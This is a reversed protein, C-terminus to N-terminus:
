RLFEECFATLEDIVTTATDWAIDLDLRGYHHAYIDRARAAARWDIGAHKEAFGPSLHKVLEGIQLVCMGVANQYTKSAIFREKSSGFEAHTEAIDACDGLIHEVIGCDRLDAEVRPM